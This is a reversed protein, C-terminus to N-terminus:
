KNHRKKNNRMMMRSEFCSRGLVKELWYLQVRGKLKIIIAIAILIITIIRLIEKKMKKRESLLRKLKIKVTIKMMKIMWVWRMSSIWRRIPIAMMMTIMTIMKMTMIKMILITSIRIVKKKMMMKMMKDEEVEEKEWCFGNVLNGLLYRITIAIRRKRITNEAEHVQIEQPNHIHCLNM